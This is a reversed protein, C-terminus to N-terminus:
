SPPDTEDIARSLFIFRACHNINVQVSPSVWQAQVRKVGGGRLPPAQVRKIGSISFRLPPPPQPMLAAAALRPPPPPAIPSSAPWGDQNVSYVLAPDKNTTDRSAEQQDGDWDKIEM